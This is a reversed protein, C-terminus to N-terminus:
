STYYIYRETKGSRTVMKSSCGVGLNRVFYNIHIPTIHNTECYARYKKHVGKLPVDNLINNAKFDHLPDNMYAMHETHTNSMEMNFGEAELLRAGEICVNFLYAGDDHEFIKKDLDYIKDKDLLKNNFSIVYFRRTISNSSHFFAPLSNSSIFWHATLSAQFPEQFKDEVTSVQV